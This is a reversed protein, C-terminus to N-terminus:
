PDAGSATHLGRLHKRHKNVFVANCSTLAKAFRINDYRQKSQRIGNMVILGFLFVNTNVIKRAKVILHPLDSFM